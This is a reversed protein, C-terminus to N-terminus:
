CRILLSLMFLLLPLPVIVFQRLGLLYESLIAGLLMLM